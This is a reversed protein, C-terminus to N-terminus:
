TEPCPDQLGLSIELADTKLWTCAPRRAPKHIIAEYFTWSGNSLREVLREVLERDQALDFSERDQAFGFSPQTGSCGEDNCRVERYAENRLIQAGQMQIKKRQRRIGVKQSIIMRLFCHFFIYNCWFPYSHLSINAPANERPM